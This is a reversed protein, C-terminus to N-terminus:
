RVVGICRRWRRAVVRGIEALVDCALAPEADRFARFAPRGLQLLVSTGCSWVSATRGEDDLFAVEGVLSGPLRRQTASLSLGDAQSISVDLRGEILFFLDNSHDDRRLLLDGDHLVRVEAGALLQEWADRGWGPLRFVDDRDRRASALEVLTEMLEAKTKM